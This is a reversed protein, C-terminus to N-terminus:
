SFKGLLSLKDIEGNYYIWYIYIYVQTYACKGTRSWGTTKIIAVAMLAM